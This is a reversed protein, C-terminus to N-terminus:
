KTEKETWTVVVSVTAYEHGVANRFAIADEPKVFVTALDKGYLRYGNAEFTASQPPPAVPRGVDGRLRRWRHLIYGFQDVSWDRVSCKDLAFMARDLDKLPLCKRMHSRTVNPFMERIEARASPQYFASMRRYEYVSTKAKKIDRAFEDLSHEGYRTEVECADDGVLWAAEDGVNGVMRAHECIEMYSRPATTTTLEALMM